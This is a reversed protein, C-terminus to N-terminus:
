LVGAQELIETQTRSSFINFGSNAINRRADSNELLSICMRVLYDYPMLAMGPGEEGYPVYKSELDSDKGNESVICRKNSMLYSTRFTEHIGENYYHMNLVIKSRAILKDLEEGYVGFAIHLKCKSQLESLIDVRRENRSGYFLVDIDRDVNPLNKTMSPMYGVEVLKAEIGHKKLEEINNRSYDWVESANKLLIKYDPHEEFWKDSIQESNYIVLDPNTGKLLHGCFVLTRGQPPAIGVVLETGLADAFGQAVHRLGESHSYSDPRVLWVNM